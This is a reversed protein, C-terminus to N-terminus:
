RSRFLEDAVTGLDALKETAVDGLLAPITTALWATPMARNIQSTHM